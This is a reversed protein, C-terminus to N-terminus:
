RKPRLGPRPTCRRGSCTATGSPSRASTSASVSKSPTSRTATNHEQLAREIAAAARVAPDTSPFSILFGDGLSKRVRGGFAAVEDRVIAAQLGLMDDADRDGRTRRLATSAVVDTMMITLMKAASQSGVLVVKRTSAAMILCRICLLQQRAATTRAASRTGTATALEPLM